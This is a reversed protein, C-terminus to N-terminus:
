DTAHEVEFVYELGNWARILTCETFLYTVLRNIGRRSLQHETREQGPRWVFVLRPAPNITVTM